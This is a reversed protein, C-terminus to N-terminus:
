PGTTENPPPISGGARRAVVALAALGLLALVLALRYPWRDIWFRVRHAGQPLELGLRTMQAPVPRAARGDISARWIPLYARRLVLVGGDPSDVEVEVREPRSELVRAVGPAGARPAGSGPVVAERRPDFGPALLRALAANLHPAPVVDGAVEAEGIAGRVAYVFLPPELADFREVLVAREALGEALPRPLLLRDVGTAALLRLRGADDLRRMAEGLAYATFHDLGEPSFDLEYRRGAQHGAFSFGSAWARRVQRALDGGLSRTLMLDNGFIENVAGHALVEEAPLHAYLEPPAAYGRAADTPLIGALLSLQLGAQAALLLPVALGFHALRRALALRPLLLAVLSLFAIAAWRAREGGFSEAGLGDGLRRTLAPASEVSLRTVALWLLAYVFAGCSLALAARRAGNAEERLAEIALGALLALGLAAWLAFKAVFRVKDMGPIAALAAVLPTGASFTLLLGAIALGLARGRPARRSAMGAAMLALAVAGPALSFYLPPTGGFYANGWFSGGDPRGFFLPLLLDVLAAPRPAAVALDRASFGQFGRYSEPLIQWTTLIQPAALLTGAVLAGAARLFPYGRVKGPLALSAAAVLALGALIPDGGLLALAWVGGLALTARRRREPRALEVAAAALAPAWAAGAVGNYLNLQSVFFGSFAYAVGVGLAAERGFGLARGLWAAAALALLWHLWFHANLQWIPSAVLLLLNDPYFAVVNPNGALPQGGARLPDVLPLEGEALSKALSARLALHTVLTDRLVLTRDGSALPVIRVALLLLVPALCWVLPRKM